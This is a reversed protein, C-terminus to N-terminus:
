TELHPIQDLGRLSALPATRPLSGVRPILVTLVMDSARELVASQNARPMVRLYLNPSLLYPLM